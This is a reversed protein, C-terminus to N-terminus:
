LLWIAFSCPVFPPKFRACFYEVFLFGASFLQFLAAPSLPLWIGREQVNLFLIPACPLTVIRLSDMQRAQFWLLGVSIRIRERTAMAFRLARGFRINVPNLGALRFANKASGSGLSHWKETWFACFDSM